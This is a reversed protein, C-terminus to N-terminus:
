ICTYTNSITPYYKSINETIITEESLNDRSKNISCAVSQDDVSAEEAHPFYDSTLIKSSSITDTQQHAIVLM